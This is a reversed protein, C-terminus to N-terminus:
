DDAGPDACARVFHPLLGAWGGRNADRWGPGTEGLREWGGHVIEILTTGDGRGTFTIAVDTARARTTRIHWRYALRTPPEWATVEGWEVEEGGPTREFVRGGVRPEFHVAFGPRGETTHSVPWWLSARTTWTAFAHEVSCAVAVSLRLPEIM